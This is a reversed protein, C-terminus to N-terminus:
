QLRAHVRLAIDKSAHDCGSRLVVNAFMQEERLLEVSRCSELKWEEQPSRQQAVPRSWDSLVAAGEASSTAGLALLSEAAVEDAVDLADPSVPM